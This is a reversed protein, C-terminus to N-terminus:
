LESNCVLAHPSVEKPEAPPMPAIPHALREKKVTPIFIIDSDDEVPEAKAQAITVPVDQIFAPRLRDTRQRDKPHYDLGVNPVSM